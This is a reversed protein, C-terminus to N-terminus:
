KGALKSFVELAENVKALMWTSFGSVSPFHEVISDLRGDAVAWSLATALILMVFWSGLLKAAVKSSNKYLEVDSTRISERVAMAEAIVALAEVVGTAMWLTPLIKGCWMAVVLAIFGMMYAINDRALKYRENRLQESSQVPAKGLNEWDQRVSDRVAKAIVTFAKLLNTFFREIKETLTSRDETVIGEEDIRYRRKKNLAM